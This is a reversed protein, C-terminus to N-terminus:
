EDEKEFLDSYMEEVLRELYAEDLNVFQKQVASKVYEFRQFYKLEEETDAFDLEADIQERNLNQFCWKKIEDTLSNEKVARKKLIEFNRLSIFGMILFLVFMVGMVGGILYKSFVAMPIHIVDFFFLLVFVFGLGGIILLTFASTRNEEAKEENNVYITHKEPKKKENEEGSVAEELTEEPMEYYEEETTEQLSDVLDCGCDACKTVGEVYECKCEPCWAM